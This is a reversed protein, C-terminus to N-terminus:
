GLLEKMDDSYDAQLVDHIADLYAQRNIGKDIIREAWGRSDEIFERLLKIEAAQERLVRAMREFDPQVDDLEIFDEAYIEEFDDLWTM